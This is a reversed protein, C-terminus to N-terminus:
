NAWDQLRQPAASGDESYVKANGDQRIAVYLVNKTVDAMLVAGPDGGSHAQMASTYLLGNEIEIPTEVEWISVMYDYQSGLLKQLRPKLVENDLLKINHPYKGNLETLFSLSAKDSQTSASAKSDNEKKLIENEKKLLENEKQLLESNNDSESKTAPMCAYLAIALVLFFIRYLNNQKNIM